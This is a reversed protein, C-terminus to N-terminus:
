KNFPLNEDDVPDYEYDFDYEEFYIEESQIECDFSDWYTGM